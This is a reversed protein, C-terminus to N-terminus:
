VARRWLIVGVLIMWVVVVLNFPMAVTMETTSFGTYASLLGGAVSGVGGMVGVWGLCRPFEKSRAVALGSLSVSAGFLLAMYSAMGIEIQRVALAAMFASQKQELSANSWNTVALKLAVGDVAQLTAAVALACAGFLMGLRALWETPQAQITDRLAVLGVFMLAVGIFQTLHSSVWHPDAAYETFAALADAPDAAMPHLMTGVLLALAGAIAAVAGVRPPVFLGMEAAAGRGETVLRGPNAPAVRGGPGFVRMQLRRAPRSGRERETRSSVAPKCDEVGVHGLIFHGYLGCEVLDRDIGQRLKIAPHFAAVPRWPFIRRRESESGFGVGIM